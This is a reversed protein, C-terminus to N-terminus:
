PSIAAVYQLATFVKNYQQKDILIKAAELVKLVSGEAALPAVSAVGLETCNRTNNSTKKPSGLYKCGPYRPKV